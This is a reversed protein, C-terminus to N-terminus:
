ADKPALISGDAPVSRRVAEIVVSIDGFCAVEFALVSNWGHNLGNRGRPLLDSGPPRASCDEGASVVPCIEFGSIERFHGM